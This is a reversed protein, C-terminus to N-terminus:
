QLIATAEATEFFASAVHSSSAAPSSDLASYLLSIGLKVQRLDWQYPFCILPPVVGSREEDPSFRDTREQKVEPEIESWFFFCFVALVSYSITNVESHCISFNDIALEFDM